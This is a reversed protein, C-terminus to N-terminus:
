EDIVRVARVYNFVVRVDGQPGKGSMPYEAEDGTKPDSRQAGAGHVDMIIGNMEGLAEGFAIYVANEGMVKGDLHTTSTWYYPYGTAGNITEIETVYFLPDIAASDTTNPSRSYDVISQLEKADPLKWDDYGAYELNEAWSLADDWDMAGDEEFYGSDYTMWMLGTSLDTVTGDGNDVFNNLGYTEDGRVLMVYFEKDIPYGKIRGDAFNVGFMTTNGNMTDSEYITSTVYQSDIVREGTVDGYNFVFYDTNIYPIEETVGSFDILSYLEKITPLRWDTYGALEFDELMEVAQTWTMKEGPDQQWMLGTVNDTVTGDGNDTYSAENTEYHADQGYFSEGVGPENIISNNSYFATTGTDVVPYNGTLSSTDVDAVLQDEIANAEEVSLSSQISLQGTQKSQEANQLDNANQTEAPIKDASATVTEYSGSPLATVEDHLTSVCGNLLM